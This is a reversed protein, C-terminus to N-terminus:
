VGGRPLDYEVSTLPVKYQVRASQRRRAEKHLREDALDYGLFIWFLGMASYSFPYASMGNVAATVAIIATLRAVAGPRMIRWTSCIIIMLLAFVYPVSGQLLTKVYENDIYLHFKVRPSIWTGLPHETYFAMALHWAAVRASANSDAQAGETLVDLGREFRDVVSFKDSVAVGDSQSLAAGLWGVTLVFCIASLYTIDRAKKLRPDRSLAVYALWVAFTALLSILSGRSQSLVLTFIAAMVGTVRFMGRFLLASM